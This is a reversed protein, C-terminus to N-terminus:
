LFVYHLNLAFMADIIGITHQRVLNSNKKQLTNIASM